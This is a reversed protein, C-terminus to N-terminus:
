IKWDEEPETWPGMVHNETSVGGALATQYEAISEEAMQISHQLARREELRNYYKHAVQRFNEDAELDNTIYPELRTECARIDRNVKELRSEAEELLQRQELVLRYAEGGVSAMESEVSDAQKHLRDGESKKRKAM